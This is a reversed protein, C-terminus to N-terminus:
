LPRGAAVLFRILPGNAIGEDPRGFGDVSTAPEKGTIIRYVRMMAAVWDNIAMDGPNREAVTLKGVAAVETAAKSARRSLESAAAVAEMIEVLRGIRQTAHMVPIADREGVLIM